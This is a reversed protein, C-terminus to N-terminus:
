NGTIHLRNIRRGDALRLLQDRNIASLNLVALGTQKSDRSPLAEILWGAKKAADGSGAAAIEAPLDIAGNGEISVQVLRRKVSGRYHIKAIVEQGPYCGKDFDIAALELLGLMQPLFHGSSAPYLWSLGLEMDQRRWATEDLLQATFEEPLGFNAPYLILRRKTQGGLPIHIAPQIDAQEGSGLVRYLRSVENVELRARLIFMRLRRAIGACLQRSLLMIFHGDAVCVVLVVALARGDPQCYAALRSEGAALRNIDASLQAHLFERADIGKFELVGFLSDLKFQDSGDNM